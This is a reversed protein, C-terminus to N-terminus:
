STQSEKFRVADICYQKMKRNLTKYDTRLLRAAESKNGRTVHLARRIEQQEAEAAAAEAVEKLSSRGTVPEPEFTSPVDVRLCSLHEPEIADSALLAARRIVNRLERINGPWSYRLLVQAAAESIERCRSGFEMSAEALFVDALHCIDDRARLPPLMIVFENLRYYVDQRFRGARVEGELSLNSAAIVRVDVRVPRKSGLPQVDREQLARLLKAQTALPLNVIEDLFLSGGDALQCRGEKRQDAGTFAGKEYGFLESEILTDPIAGCDVAVFPKRRRASLHHIARAVLEKGTGTEGEILVTLPSGAVQKIHEIVKAMQRCPGVLWKLPTEIIRHAENLERTRQEVTRELQRLEHELALHEEKVGRSQAAEHIARHLSGIFYELDIPKEIFDYAGGRLADIALAHEAHGTILLTPTDPQRTRIETLLTVGDMGPMKIDTVIADYERGAIRDLAVRASDATDIVSSTRLRLAESLAQLLVPDDDVILVRPTSAVRHHAERATRVQADVPNADQSRTESCQRGTPPRHPEHARIAPNLAAVFPDCRVRRFDSVGGSQVWQASDYSSRSSITVSSTM